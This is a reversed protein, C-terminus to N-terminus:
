ATIRKVGLCTCSSLKKANAKLVVICDPNLNEIRRKVERAETQLTFATPLTGPGAFFDDDLTATWCNRNFDQHLIIIKRM